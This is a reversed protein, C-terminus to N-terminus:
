REDGVMFQEFLFRDGWLYSKGLQALAYTIVVTEAVAAASVVYNTPAGNNIVPSSPL